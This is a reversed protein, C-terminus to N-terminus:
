DEDGTSCHEQLFLEQVAWQEYAKKILRRKDIILKEQQDLQNSIDKLHDKYVEQPIILTSKLVARYRGLTEFYQDLDKRMSERLFTTQDALEKSQLATQECLDSDAKTFFGFAIFVAIIWKM